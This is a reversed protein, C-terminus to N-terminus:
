IPIVTCSASGAAIRAFTRSIVLFCFEKEERAPLGTYYRIGM